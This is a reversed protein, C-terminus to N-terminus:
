APAQGWVGATIADALRGYRDPLERAAASDLLQARAEAADGAQMAACMHHFPSGVNFTQNVLVDFWVPNINPLWPMVALLAREERAVDNTFLLDIEDPALDRSGLNRGIGITPNGGSPLRTVPQGTKDDYLHARTGEDAKLQALGAPTM